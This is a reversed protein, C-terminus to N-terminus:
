RTYTPKIKMNTITGLIITPFSVIYVPSSLLVSASPEHEVFVVTICWRYYEVSVYGSCCGEALSWGIVHRPILFNPLFSLFINHKM